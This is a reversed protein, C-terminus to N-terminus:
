VKGCYTNMVKLRGTSLHKNKRFEGHGQKIITNIPGIMAM